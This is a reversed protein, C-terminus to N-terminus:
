AIFNLSIIEIPILDKSEASKIFILNGDKNLDAIHLLQNIDCYSM